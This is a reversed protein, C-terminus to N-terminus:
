PSRKVIKAPESIRGAREIVFKKVCNATRSPVWHAFRHNENLTEIGFGRGLQVM